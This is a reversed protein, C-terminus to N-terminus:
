LFFEKFIQRNKEVPFRPNLPVYIRGDLMTAMIAAYCDINKESLICVSNSNSQSYIKSFIQFLQCGVM